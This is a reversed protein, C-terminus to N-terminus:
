IETLEEYIKNDKLTYESIYTKTKDPITAEVLEFWEGSELAKQKASENTYVLRVQIENGNEDEIIENAIYLGYFREITNKDIFKAIM